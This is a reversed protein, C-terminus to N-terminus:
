PKATVAVERVQFTGGTSRLRLYSAAHEAPNNAPIKRAPKADVSLTASAAAADWDLKLTHWASGTLDPLAVQFVADRDGNDDGPDYFRQTLGITGGSGRVSLTLTGARALPFNWVAGDRPLSPRVSLELAGDVMRAGSVRDRWWGSAPGVGLFVSWQAIGDAFKDAATTESLWDADMLVLVRREMGQGSTLAIRGDPLQVAYPYATGRDGTKPPTQHRFRDRYVERFGTWTKGEDASIAAHLADRGGYVGQGAVKPPMEAHNWFLVVRKDRLRLLFPPGTSSRIGSSKAAPWTSGDTSTSEYLFGTQTRMLMWLTGDTRELVSPEIAGVNGGNYGDFVPAVLRSPSLTWTAGDDDSYVATTENPGTPPAQPRGGVWLAFPLLIRGSRLQLMQQISGVYGEFIRQPPTFVTGKQTTRLHWLDIFRDVAINRGDGRRKTIVFQFEGRRDLLVLLGGWGSGPLGTLKEQPSWTGGGDKSVRRTLFQADGNAIVAYAHWTGDPLALLRGDAELPGLVKPPAAALAAVALFAPLISAALYRM